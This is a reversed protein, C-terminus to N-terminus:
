CHRIIDYVLHFDDLAFPNRESFATYILLMQVQIVRPRIRNSEGRDGGGGAVAAGGGASEGSSEKGVEENMDGGGEADAATCAGM